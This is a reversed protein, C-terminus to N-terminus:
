GLAELLADTLTARVSSSDPLKAGGSTQVYFTDVVDAGLTNAIASTITLGARDLTHAIRWLTGRGDPARVELLTAQGSADNDVTVMVAPEDPHVARKAAVRHRWPAPGDTGALQEELSLRGEVAATLDAEVRAADPLVDWTPTVDLQLLVVAENGWTVASRVSAGDLALVGAVTALLGPRAPAVVTFRGGDARVALRGAALLERQAPTPAPPEPAPLGALRREVLDVLRAVLGAKWRGWAAPGTALSDSETLVALLHLTERDGVAEAVGAITAPDDLDRRTAVESLLLHQRVLTVLVAVDEPPLGLRPGIEGLLAVGADTHDGPYGKGLDHFFAALLLLDPRGVRRVLETAVAVTELLHRDVTFRHYANRQPRSRVPGWEPLLREIVGQQDLTEFAAIAPRGAGLLRLWAQLLDPPWGGAPAPASATLRDIAPRALPVDLEASVAAARLALTPDTAPDAGPLFTIEDDRLALGPELPRPAWSRRGLQKRPVKRIRRWADDSAWSVVRGAQALEAALQDASRGLAAAVTDQDQLLLQNGPRGTGRQLEVRAAVLIELPEDLRGAAVLDALVPTVQALGTLLHLDRLGGRAEKLDPELLFALDGATEHRADVTAGVQPLWVKARGLWKDLAARRVEDGLAASGAVTRVDLLGLAVKIDDDMARGMERLSRVSHDLAVSGDWIPYWVADALRGIDKRNRHVLVLDVDSGPALEGRGYGGVALLAVDAPAPGAAAEFIGRLWEDAAAALAATFARGTLDTRALLAARPEAFGAVPAGTSM